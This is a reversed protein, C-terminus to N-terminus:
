ESIGRFSIAFDMNGPQQPKTRPEPPQIKFRFKRQTFPPPQQQQQQKPLEEQFAQFHGLDYESYDVSAGECLIVGYYDGVFADLYKPSLNFHNLGQKIEMPDSLSRIIFNGSLDASNGFIAFYVYAPKKPTESTYLEMSQIRCIKKFKNEMEMIITYKNPETVLTKERKTAPNGFRVNFFIKQSSNLMNLLDKSSEHSKKQYDTWYDSLTLNEKDLIENKQTLIDRKKEMEAQEKKLDATKANLDRIDAQYKDNERNIYETWKEYENPTMQCGAALVLFLGSIAMMAYKM